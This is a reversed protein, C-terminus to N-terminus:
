GEIHELPKAKILIGFGVGLLVLGILLWLVGGGAMAAAILTWAILFFVLGIAQKSNSGM